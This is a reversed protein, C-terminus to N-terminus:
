RRAASTRPLDITFVCGAGPLNRVSLTGGNAEVGRRSISLGLGLGTRAAGRQEFPQFIARVQGEPIGGCEDQIEIRVRDGHACAGVSVSGQLRTFKLANQVLNAVAGALIQRDGEVVLDEDVAAVVLELNRGAAEITAPVEIDAILDRIVIREQRPPLGASLRVEVLTRDVLDHLGALSRDLVAGTAGAMGVSGKKIAAVAVTANGILNRLEHALFGLRENLLRTSDELMSEDHRRGFETVAGAIADDLCRNLVRFEVAPITASQEVAMETIAQCVDGYDHVVQSLTFGNRRLENGHQAATADINSSCVTASLEPDLCDIVQDLFIPIGYWLERETARPARRASVKSRCRAILAGRNNRLFEKLM